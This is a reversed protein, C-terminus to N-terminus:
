PAGVPKRNIVYGENLDMVFDNRLYQKMTWYTYDGVDLYKWQVTLDEGTKLHMTFPRFEGYKPIADKFLLFAELEEKSRNSVIFQHPTYYNKSDIWKCADAATLLETEWEL